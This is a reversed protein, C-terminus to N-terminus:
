CARCPVACACTAGLSPIGTFRPHLRLRADHGHASGRTSWTNAEVTTTSTTEGSLEPGESRSRRANVQIGAVVHGSRGRRPCVDIAHLRLISIQTHSPVTASVLAEMEAETQCAELEPGTRLGPNAQCWTAM